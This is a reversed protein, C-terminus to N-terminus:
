ADKDKTIFLLQKDIRIGSVHVFIDFNLKLSKFSDEICKISHTEHFPISFDLYGIFNDYKDAKKIMKSIPREDGLFLKKILEKTTSCNHTTILYDNPIIPIDERLNSLTIYTGNYLKPTSCFHEVEKLLQNTEFYSLPVKNLRYHITDLLRLQKSKPLLAKGEVFDRIINYYNDHNSKYKVECPYEISNRELLLDCSGPFRKFNKIEYGLENLEKYARLESFISSLKNDYHIGKEKGMETFAESILGLPIKEYFDLKFPNELCIHEIFPINYYSCVAREKDVQINKKVIEGLPKLSKPLNSTEVNYNEILQMWNEPLAKQNSLLIAKM